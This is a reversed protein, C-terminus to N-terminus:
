SGTVRKAEDRATGVIGGLAAGGKEAAALTELTERTEPGLEVGIFTSAAIREAAACIETAVREIMSRTERGLESEITFLGM